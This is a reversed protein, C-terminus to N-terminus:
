DCLYNRMLDSQIYIIDTNQDNYDLNPIKALVKKLAEKLLVTDKEEKKEIHKIPIFVVKVKKPIKANFIHIGDLQIVKNYRRSAIVVLMDKQQAQIESLSLFSRQILAPIDPLLVRPPAFCIQVDSTSFVNFRCWHKTQGAQLIVPTPWIRWEPAIFIGKRTKMIHCGGTTFDQVTLLNKELNNLSYPRGEPCIVSILFRLVRLQIEEPQEQWLLRPIFCFGMEHFVVSCRVFRMSFFDLATRARHIREASIALARASLENEAFLPLRRRWRVREYLPDNNMPDEIWTMKKQHLYTLIKDKSIMLLPRFLWIGERRSIRSMGSVGDVGSGRSLRALVTEAQDELHHALCLASIGQQQCYQIMLAYRATRAREELHAGSLSEKVTLIKHKINQAAMIKGVDVAERSSDPRIKHDVTLAILMRNHAEAWTKLLLTLCLSDAGGSLAVAIPANDAIPATKFFSEIETKLSM